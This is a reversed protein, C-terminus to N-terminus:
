LSILGLFTVFGWLFLGRLQPNELEPVGLIIVNIM